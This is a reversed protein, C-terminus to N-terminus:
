VQRVSRNQVPTSLRQEFVERLEVLNEGPNRSFHFVAPKDKNLINKADRQRINETIPEFGCKCRKLEIPFVVADDKGPETGALENARNAAAIDDEVANSPRPEIGAHLAQDMRQRGYRNGTREHAGTMGGGDESHHSHGVSYAIVQVSIHPDGNT